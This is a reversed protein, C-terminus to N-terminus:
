LPQSVEGSRSSEGIPLEFVSGPDVTSRRAVLQNHQDDVEKRTIFLRVTGRNDDLDPPTQPARCYEM